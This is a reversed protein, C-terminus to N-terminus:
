YRWRLAPLFRPGSSQSSFPIGTRESIALAAGILYVQLPLHPHGGQELANSYVEEGSLFTEAGRRLQRVLLVIAVVSSISVISGQWLAPHRNLKAYYLAVCYALWVGSGLMVGRFSLLTRM